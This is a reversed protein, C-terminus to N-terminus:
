HNLTRKWHVVTQHLLRCSPLAPQRVVETGRGSLYATQEEVLCSVQILRHTM